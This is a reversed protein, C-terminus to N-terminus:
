NEVQSVARRTPPSTYLQAAVAGNGQPVAIDVTLVENDDSCWAIAATADLLFDRAREADMADRLRLDIDQISAEGVALLAYCTGAEAEVDLTRIGASPLVARWQSGVPSWRAVSRSALSNLRNSLEDREGNVTERTNVDAFIAMQLTGEGAFVRARAELQGARPACWEVVPYADDTVDQAVLEGDFYVRVDLDIIESSFAAAGYCIGVQVTASMAAEQRLGLTHSEAPQLLEYSALFRRAVQKWSQPPTAVAGRPDGALTQAALPTQQAALLSLTLVFATLTAVHRGLLRGSARTSRSRQTGTLTM